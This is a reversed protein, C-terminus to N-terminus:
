LKYPCIIAMKLGEGKKAQFLINEVCIILPILVSFSKIFFNYICVISLNRRMIVAIKEQVCIRFNPRPYPTQFRLEEDFESPSGTQSLHPQHPSTHGILPFHPQHALHIASSPSAHSIFSFHPRHPPLTAILHFHQQQSLYPLQIATFFAAFFQM